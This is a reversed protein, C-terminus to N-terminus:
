GIKWESINIFPNTFDGSVQFNKVRSNHAWVSQPNYLWFYAAQQNEILAAKQYAATRAAPDTTKNAALMAQDLAPNCFHPINGGTPYFNDCALITNVNWPEVAYGGGGYLVMDFKLTKYSEVLDAAQVQKLNVKIGAAQLQSQVVTVTTDRDRQGTIWALTVPTAPNWGGEKLLAKAKAPNYAYDNLGAAPPQAVFSSGPVTGKGGLVTAVIKKRDVAYLFAQRIKPNKFQPKTQNWAIRTYGPADKADVTMNKMKQVSPLDTASIQAIDMEGTGLQATAVDSTVPKLFVRAINVKSRYKPNARLEVYQDTKYTVFQYPGMGVKPNNFFDNKALQDLPIAGLVHEPLIPVVALLGLLGINPKSTKIVFTSDDPATFGSLTKATGATVAAYGEVVSYNSSSASGSNANAVLNYTFLLDKSTFPKGDSWTLGPRLKFTFTTADSSITPQAAALHPQLKYSADPGLLSDFVLSMVAQDPGNAPALPSFQKPKQYLYINLTSAASANPKSSDGSTGPAACGALAGAAVTLCAAVAVVSSSRSTKV